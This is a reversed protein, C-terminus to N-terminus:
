STETWVDYAHLVVGGVTSPDTPGRFEKPVTTAVYDIPQYHSGDWTFVIGGSIYEIGKPKTSNVVLTQGLTGAALRGYAGTATGVLLDGKTTITTALVFESLAHWDLDGAVSVLIGDGDPIDNLDVLNFGKGVISSGSRVPTQGDALLGLLSTSIAAIKLTGDAALSVLLYGNLISGWAGTDGGVAPLRETM